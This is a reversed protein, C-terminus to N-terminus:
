MARGRARVLCRVPSCVPGDVVEVAARQEANLSTLYNLEPAKAHPEAPNDEALGALDFPDSM